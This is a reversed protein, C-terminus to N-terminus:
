LTNPLYQVLGRQELESISRTVCRFSKNLETQVWHQTVQGDSDGFDCSEVSVLIMHNLLSTRASSFSRSITLLVKVRLHKVMMVAALERPAM